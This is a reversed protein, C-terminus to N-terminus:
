RVIVLKNLEPKKNEFGAKVLFVGPAFASLSLKQKKERCDFSRTMLIKGYMDAISLNCMGDYMNEFVIEAETNAPNPIIKLRIEKGAQSTVDQKKRYYGAQACVYSDDYEISDNILSILVRARYVSTGGAYPCQQAVTLIAAYDNNVAGTGEFYYEAIKQNIFKENEVPLADAVVQANASVAQQYLISDIITQQAMMASVALQYAAISDIWQQRESYLNLSTDAAMTSDLEFIASTFFDIKGSAFTLAALSASDPKGTSALLKKVVELKGIAATDNENKFDNMVPNSLMASDTSLMNYLYQKLMTKSEGIYDVTLTSDAAIRMRLEEDDGGGTLAANCVQTGCAAFTAGQSLPAFWGTNDLYNLAPDNGDPIVPNWEPLGGSAVSRTTFLSAQLNGPQSANWNIAGYGSGFTSEWRNGHYPPTGGLPQQGIVASGTLHLGERNNRMTNGRMDTGACSGGFRMGTYPGISGQML